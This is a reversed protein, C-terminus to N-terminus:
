KMFRVRDGPSATTDKGKPVCVALTESASVVKLRGVEREEGPLTEGTVPHTFSEGQRIVALVDGEGVGAAAGLDVVLEGREAKVVYGEVPFEERIAQTMVQAATAAGSKGLKPVMRKWRPQESRITTLVGGTEVDVIRTSVSFEKTVGLDTRKKEVTYSVLGLYGCGALEGLVQINSGTFSQLEQEIIIQELRAREVLEFSRSDIFAESAINMVETEEGTGSEEMVLCIVRNAHAPSTSVFLLVLLFCTFYFCALHPHRERM